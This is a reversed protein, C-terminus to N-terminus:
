LYFVLHWNHPHGFERGEVWGLTARRQRAVTSHEARSRSSHLRATLLEYLPREAVVYGTASNEHGRASNM